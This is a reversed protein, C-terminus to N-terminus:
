QTPEEPHVNVSIIALCGEVQALARWEGRVVGPVVEEEFWVPDTLLKVYPGERRIVTGAWGTLRERGVHEADVSAQRSEQRAHTM